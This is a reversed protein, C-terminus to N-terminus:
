FGSGQIWRWDVLTGVTYTLGDAGRPLRPAGISGLVFNGVDDIGEIILANAQSITHM